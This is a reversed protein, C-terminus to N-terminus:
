RSRTPLLGHRKYGSALRPDIVIKRTRVEAVCSLGHVDLLEVGLITIHMRNKTTAQRDWDPILSRADGEETAHVGAAM